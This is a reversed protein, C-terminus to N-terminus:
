SSGRPATRWLGRRARSGAGGAARAGRLRYVFQPNGNAPVGSKTCFVFDNNSNAGLLWDGLQMVTDSPGALKPHNNASTTRVNGFSIAGDSGRFSLTNQLGIHHVVLRTPSENYVGLFWNGIQAPRAAERADGRRGPRCAPRRGRASAGRAV